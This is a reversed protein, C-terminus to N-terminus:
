ISVNSCKNPPWLLNKPLFTRFIANKSIGVWLPCRHSINSLDWPDFLLLQGTLYFFLNFLPFFHTTLAFFYTKPSKGGFFGKFFVDNKVTARKKAKTVGKKADQRRIIDCKAGKKSEVGARPSIPLPRPGFLPHVGFRAMKPRKQWFAANKKTKQDLRHCPQSRSSIETGYTTGLCAYPTYNSEQLRNLINNKTRPTTGVPGRRHPPPAVAMKRFCGVAWRGGEPPPPTPQM